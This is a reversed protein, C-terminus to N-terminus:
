DGAKLILTVAARNVSSGEVAGDLDVVHIWRCGASVFQHAQEGPDDNYTTVADFDGYLLRVCAGNKIDIAPYLNM